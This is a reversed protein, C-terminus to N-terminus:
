KVPEAWNVVVFDEICNEPTAMLLKGVAVMQEVWYDWYIALIEEDTVVFVVATSDEASTPEIYRWTRM